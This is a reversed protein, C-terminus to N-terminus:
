PSGATAGPDRVDKVSSATASSTLRELMPTYRFLKIPNNAPTSSVNVLRAMRAESPPGLTDIGTPEYKPATALAYRTVASNGDDLCNPTTSYTLKRPRKVINAQTSVATTDMYMQYTTPSLSSDFASFRVVSTDTPM